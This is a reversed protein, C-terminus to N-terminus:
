EFSGLTVGNGPTVYVAFGYEGPADDPSVRWTSRSTAGDAATVVVRYRGERLVVDRLSRDDVAGVRYTANLATEGSREHVVRVHVSTPRDDFNVVTLGRARGVIDGDDTGNGRYPDALTRDDDLPVRQAANQDVRYVAPPETFAGVSRDEDHAATVSGDCAAVAYYDGDVWRDFWAECTTSVDVVGPALRGNVTVARERESAYAAVADPDPQAPPEPVSVPTVTGPTGTATDTPTGGWSEVAVGSCGALLVTLAVLAAALRM